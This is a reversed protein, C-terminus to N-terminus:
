GRAGTGGGPGGNGFGGGGPAGGGGLGGGGVGGPGRTGTGRPTSGRAAVVVQDGDVLGRVIETTAGYVTGVTVPVTVQVGDKVQYVVSQGGADHIAATPVTLVDPVQKITIVVSATSGAYLGAPTGTVAITVPYTSTGGSATGIVGVTSITGFVPDAAGSPTITTQLGPKLSPLDSAGVGASVTWANTSIVVVQASTASAAAGASSGGSAGSGAGSAGSSGGGGSVAVAGSGSSSGPGAGSGSVQDGVAITVAAVTGALSSTLSAQGRAQQAATLKTQASIVQANASATQPASAATTAATLQAQAATLQAQALTVASDLTAPDLTAVVAGAAVQQGVQVVVTTVKGSQGFQLNVQHAPQITGSASVTQKMTSTTAAVLQTTTAAAPTADRHTVAWAGAGGGVVIVVTLAAM